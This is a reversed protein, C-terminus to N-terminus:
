GSLSRSLYPSKENKELHRGDALIANQAIEGFNPM